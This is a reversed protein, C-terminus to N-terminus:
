ANSNCSRHQQFLFSPIWETLFMSLKEKFLLITESFTITIGVLTIDFGTIKTPMQLSYTHLSHNRRQMRSM